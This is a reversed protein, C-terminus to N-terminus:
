KCLTKQLDNYIPMQNLYNCITKPYMYREVKSTDKVWFGLNVKNVDLSWNLLQFGMGHKICILDTNYEFADTKKRSLHWILGKILYGRKHSQFDSVHSLEHGLVGLQGELSLNDFLIPSLKEFTKTSINIKYKWNSKKRFFNFTSPITTLPIIQKRKHIRINDFNLEPFYARCFNIHFQLSSDTKSLFEQPQNKLFEFNVKSLPKTQANTLIINSFLFVLILIIKNTKITM